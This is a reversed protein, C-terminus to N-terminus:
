RRAPSRRKPRRGSPRLCRRAPHAAPLLIPRNARWVSFFLATRTRNQALGKPARSCNQGLILFLPLLIVSTSFKEAARSSSSSNPSEGLLRRPCFKKHSGPTTARMASAAPMVWSSATSSIPGPNPASVRSSELRALFTTATSISLPSTSASPLVRASQGLM